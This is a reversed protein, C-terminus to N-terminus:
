DLDTGEILEQYIPHSPSNIFRTPGLAEGLLEETAEAPWHVPSPAPKFKARYRAYTRDSIIRFAHQSYFDAPRQFLPVLSEYWSNEVTVSVVWLGISRTTHSWFPFVRVAKLEDRIPGRISPAVFFYEVELGNPGSRRPLLRTPLELAPNLAIWERRGPRRIRKVQLAGLDLDEGDDPDVGIDEHPVVLPGGHGVLIAEPNEREVAPTAPPTPTGARGPADNPLLNSHM